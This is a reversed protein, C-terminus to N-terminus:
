RTARCGTRSGQRVRVGALSGELRVDSCGQKRASEMGKNVERARGYNAQGQGWGYNAQGQGWGGQIGEPDESAVDRVEPPREVLRDETSLM